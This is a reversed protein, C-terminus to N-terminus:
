RNDIARSGPGVTAATVCALVNVSVTLATRFQEGFLRSNIRLSDVNLLCPTDDFRGGCNQCATYDGQRTFGCSSCEFWYM